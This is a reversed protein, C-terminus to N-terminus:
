YGTSPNRWRSTAERVEQLRSHTKAIDNILAQPNRTPQTDERGTATSSDVDAVVEMVIAQLKQAARDVALRARSTDAGGGGINAYEILKRALEKKSEELKTLGVLIPERVSVGWSRCAQYIIFELSRGVRLAAATFHSHRIEELLQRIEHELVARGDALFLPDLNMTLRSLEKTLEDEDSALEVIFDTPEVAEGLRLQHLAHDEAVLRAAEDWNGEPATVVVVGTEEDVAASASQLRSPFLVLYLRADASLAQGYSVLRHIFTRRQSRTWDGLKVDVVGFPPGPLFIDIVFRSGPLRFERVPIIGRTLLGEALGREHDQMFSLKVLRRLSETRRASDRMEDATLLLPVDDVPLTPQGHVGTSPLIEFDGGLVLGEALLRACVWQAVPPPTSNAVWRRGLHHSAIAGTGAGGFSLVAVLDGPNSGMEIIRRLM